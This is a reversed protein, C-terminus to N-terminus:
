ERLPIEGTGGLLRTVDDIGDRVGQYGTPDSHFVALQLANCITMPVLLTNYEEDGGRPAALLHDPSPRFQYGPVDSILISTGGRRAAEAILIPVRQSSERLAFVVLTSDADFTAFREAVDKRTSGLTVVMKGLRRLRRALLERISLDDNHSFLYVSSSRHLTAAASDITEQPIFEALRALARSEDGSLAALDWGSHSRMTTRSTTPGAEDKRLDARLEAYGRYGLKQALRIATSEHTQALQAVETATFASVNAEGLLVTLIRSESATWLRDTGAAVSRFSM